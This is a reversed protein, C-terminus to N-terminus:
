DDIQEGKRLDELWLNIRDRADEILDEKDRPSIIVHFFADISTEAEDLLVEPFNISRNFGKKHREAHSLEHALCALYSLRSNATNSTGPYVNAGLIVKKHTESYRTKSGDESAETIDLPVNERGQCLVEWADLCKSIQSDTLGAYNRQDLSM